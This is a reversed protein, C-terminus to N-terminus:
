AEPTYQRQGLEKDIMFIGHKSGEVMKLMDIIERDNEEEEVQENIFWQLMNYTARDKLEEALDVLENICKTIHQEHKLTEEFAHLPSEWEHPPEQIAMLKVTAGQSNLYNYFKMAHDMEEKFQVMMWNAFGKLGISEFWASMSLYLYASYMEENIQKNIADEMRKDIM